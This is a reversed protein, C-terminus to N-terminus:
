ENHERMTKLRSAATRGLKSYRDSEVVLRYLSSAGRLDDSREMAEALLFLNEIVPLLKVSAALKDRAASVKGQKLYLYGLGMLTRYYNPQLNVAKKLHLSASKKDGSRLYAMGLAGLIRPQDAAETAAQLYTAMADARRGQKELDRAVALLEYGANFESLRVVSGPMTENSVVQGSYDKSYRGFCAADCGQEEFFRALRVSPAEIDYVSEQGAFFDDIAIVVDRNAREGFPADARQAASSMLTNLKQASQNQALLGRTVIVHRGPLVYLAQRSTDAVLVNLQLKVAQRNLDDMLQADHYAGGLIQLLRGATAKGLRKQEEISLQPTQAPVYRNLGACGNLVLLGLVCIFPILQKRSYMLM